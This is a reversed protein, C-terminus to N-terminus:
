TNRPCGHRTPLIDSSLSSALARRRACNSPVSPKSKLHTQSNAHADRTTIDKTNFHLRLFDLDVCFLRLFPANDWSDVKWHISHLNPLPYHGLTQTQVSLLNFAALSVKTRAPLANQLPLTTQSDSGNRMPLVVYSLRSVLLSRFQTCKFLHHMRIRRRAAGLRRLAFM